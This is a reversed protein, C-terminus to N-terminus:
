KDKLVKKVFEEITKMKNEWSVKEVYKSFTKLVLERNKSVTNAFKIIENISINNEEFKKAFIEDGDLDTDKYAYIFPIGRVIYERSKLTCAEKMNNKSLALSSIGINMRSMLIDLDENYVKGHVIIELNETDINSLIKNQFETISGVLNLEIKVDGTYSQLLSLLGELGHWPSFLSAVFIMKLVKNDFQIFNTKKFSNKNIGNAVTISPINKKIKKLEIKRIEDTVCIIGSVKSLFSKAFCMEIYARIKDVLRNVAFLESIEDTHHETFIKNGYKNMFSTSGFGDVLPYRLIIADYSNLDVLKELNRLKFLRFFITKLFASPLFDYSKKLIHLNKKHYNKMPNLLYFDVDINNDLSIQAKDELKKFVGPSFAPIISVHAIKM